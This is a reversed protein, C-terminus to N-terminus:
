QKIRTEYRPQSLENDMFMSCEIKEEWFYHCDKKFTKYRWCEKCLERTM